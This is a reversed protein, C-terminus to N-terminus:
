HGDHFRRRLAYMNDLEATFHRYGRIAAPRMTLAAIQRATTRTLRPFV